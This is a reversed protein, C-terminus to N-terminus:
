FRWELTGSVTAQDSWVRSGDFSFDLSFLSNTLRHSGDTLTRVFDGEIRARLCDRVRMVASASCHWAHGRTNEVTVRDGARLLHLDENAGNVLAYDFQLDLTLMPMMSSLAGARVVTGFIGGLYGHHFTQTFSIGDGPLAQPPGGGLVM